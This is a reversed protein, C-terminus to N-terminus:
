SLIDYHRNVSFPVPKTRPPLMFSKRESGMRVSRTDAKIKKEERVVEACVALTGPRM